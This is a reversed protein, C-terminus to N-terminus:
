RAPDPLEWGRREETRRRRDSKYGRERCSARGIEPYDLSGSGPRWPWAPVRSGLLRKFSAPPSRELPLPTNHGQRARSKTWWGQASAHTARLKLAIGGRPRAVTIPVAATAAM